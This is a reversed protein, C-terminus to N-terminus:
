TYGTYNCLSFQLSFIYLYIFTDYPYYPVHRFGEAQTAVM